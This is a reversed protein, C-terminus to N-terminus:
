LATDTLWVRVKVLVMERDVVARCALKLHANTWAKPLVSLASLLQHGPTVVVPQVEPEAAVVMLLLAVVPGVKPLAAVLTGSDEEEM